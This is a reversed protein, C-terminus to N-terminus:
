RTNIAYQDSVYFIVHVFLFQGHFDYKQNIITKKFVKQDVFNTFVDFYTFNFIDLHWELSTPIHEKSRAVPVTGTDYM